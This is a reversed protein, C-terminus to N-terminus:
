KANAIEAVRKCIHENKCPQPIKDVQADWDAKYFQCGTCFKEMETKM